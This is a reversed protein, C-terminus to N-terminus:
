IRTHGNALCKIYNADVRQSGTFRRSSMFIQLLIIDPNAIPSSPSHSPFHPFAIIMCRYLWVMSTSATLLFTSRELAAPVSSKLAVVVFIVGEIQIIQCISNVNPDNISLLERFWLSISMSVCACVCVWSHMSHKGFSIALSVLGFAVFLHHQRKEMSVSDETVAAIGVSAM